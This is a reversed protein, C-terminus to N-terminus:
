MHDHSGHTSEQTMLWAQDALYEPDCRDLAPWRRVDDPTFVGVLGAMAGHITSATPNDYVGVIRYRRNADLRLGHRKLLFRTRSMDTVRGDAARTAAIRALVAGSAVDELRVEVGYDHLHGGLARLHGGVPLTFERRQESRGPPADFTSAAGLVPYADLAFPLVDRPGTAREPTWALEVRLMAGAIEASTPNVLAFYVLLHSGRDLPVGMSEPLLVADTERGAAILREAAPSVLQRRDANAIGAHHLLERPLALGSSDVVDIRFGRIWGSVPWEIDIPAPGVHQDYPVSAPITVPGVSVVVVRRVSDVVVRASPATARVVHRAAPAPASFAVALQAVAFVAHVVSM